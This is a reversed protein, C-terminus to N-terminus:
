ILVFLRNCLAHMNLHTYKHIYINIINLISLIQINGFFLLPCRFLIKDHM